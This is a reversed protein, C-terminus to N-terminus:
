LYRDNSLLSSLACLLDACLQAFGHYRDSSLHRHQCSRRSDRNLAADISVFCSTSASEVVSHAHMKARLAVLMGASNLALGRRRTREATRRGRYVPLRRHSPEHRSLMRQTSELIGPITSPLMAALLSADNANADRMVARELM